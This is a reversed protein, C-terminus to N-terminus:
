VKLAESQDKFIPMQETLQLVKLTMFIEPRVGCLKFDVKNEQSKSNSLLLVRIGLSNIFEVRSLDLIVKTSSELTHVMLSEFDKVIEPSSIATEHIELVTIEYKVKWDVLM